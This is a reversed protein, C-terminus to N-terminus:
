TWGLYEAVTYVFRSKHMGYTSRAADRPFPENYMVSNWVGLRYEAPVEERALEIAKVISSDDYIKLAKSETVSGTRTSTVHVDDKRPGADIADQIKEKLRHYDRIQYVTKM